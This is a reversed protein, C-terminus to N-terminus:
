IIMKLCQFTISNNLHFATDWLSVDEGVSIIFTVIYLYWYGSQMEPEFHFLINKVKLGGTVQQFVFM